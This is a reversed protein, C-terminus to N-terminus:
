KRDHCSLKKMKQLNRAEPLDGTIGFKDVMMQLVKPSVFAPLTPGLSIHRVGLALLSLLVIVAKQEYWAINYVIPLDNINRLGLMNRLKVATLVLSYADNCQGADLVRPFENIGQLGLRNYRYKACGATLIVCDDPLQLAFDTYYERCRHRGDCGAMVVFKRVSGSTVAEIISEAYKEMQHHAFGGIIFGEGNPQPPDCQKAVDILESFDKYGSSDAEIHACGPYHVANTTYLRHCYNARESMPVLCNSTLLIPGNFTSFDNRQQWWAGGYNAVLHPYQKLNPYYHAPLMEGHTYIDVGSNASQELLMYLDRLDHGSVLIGPHDGVELNVKTVEPHGFTETNAQDLLAMAQVGKEGTDLMMGFLDDESLRHTCLASLTRQVFADLREDEFGLNRAHEMYAAMGKLGYTIIEHLSRVDEDTHRMVGVERAKQAYKEEDCQWWLVEDVAPVEVRHQEAMRLLRDRFTKGKRIKRTISKEDFNTNTITTFLADTVFANLEVPLEVGKKRLAHAVVCVGRTVFLLMDLANAVTAPKGCAGVVTCGKGNATEQCQYCFMQKEM